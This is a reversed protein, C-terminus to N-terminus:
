EGNEKTEAANLAAVVKQAAVLSDCEAYPFYCSGGISQCLVIYEYRSKEMIIYKRNTEMTNSKEGLSTPSVTVLALMQGWTM